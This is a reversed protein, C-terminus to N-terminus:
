SDEARNDGAERLILQRYTLFIRLIACKLITLVTQEQMVKRFIMCQVDRDKYIFM